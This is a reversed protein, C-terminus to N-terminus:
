NKEALFAEQLKLFKEVQATITARDKADLKQLAVKVKDSDMNAIACIDALTLGPLGPPAEANKDPDVREKLEITGFVTLIHGKVAFKVNVINVDEIQASGEPLTFELPEMETTFRKMVYGDVVKEGM